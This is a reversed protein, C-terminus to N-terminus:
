LFAAKAPLIRSIGQLLLFNVPPFIEGKQVHKINRINISLHCERLRMVRYFSRGQGTIIVERYCLTVELSIKWVRINVGGSYLWLKFKIFKQNTTKEIVRCM